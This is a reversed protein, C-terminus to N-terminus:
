IEKWCIKFIESSKNRAQMNELVFNETIIKRMGTYTLDRGGRVVEKTEKLIKLKEKTKWM